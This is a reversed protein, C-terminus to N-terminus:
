LHAFFMTDINIEQNNGWKWFKCVSFNVREQHIYLEILKSLLMTTYSSGCDLHLATGDSGLNGPVAGKYDVGKEFSWQNIKKEKGFHWLISDYLIYNKQPHREAYCIQSENTNSCIVTRKIALYYWQIFTVCNTQVNLKRINIM